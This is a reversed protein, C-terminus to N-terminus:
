RWGSTQFHGMGQFPSFSKAVLYKDRRNRKVVTNNNNDIAPQKELSHTALRRRGRLGLLDSVQQPITTQPWEALRSEGL